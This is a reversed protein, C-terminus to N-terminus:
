GVKPEFFTTKEKVFIYAVTSEYHTWEDMNNAKIWNMMAEYEKVPDFSVTTKEIITM